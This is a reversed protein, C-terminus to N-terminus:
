FRGFEERPFLDSNLVPFQEPDRNLPEFTVSEIFQDLLPLAQPRMRERQIEAYRQQLLNVDTPVPSNGPSTM